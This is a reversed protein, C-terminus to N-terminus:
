SDAEYAVLWGLFQVAANVTDAANTADRTWRLTVYEGPEVDGPTLQQIALVKDDVVAVAQYGTGEGHQPMTEDGKTSRSVNECYVNGTGNPHIVAFILMGRVFDSPTLFAGAVACKKADPMNWGADDVGGWELHTGATENKAWCAPVLFTRSRNPIKDTTVADNAIHETNVVGDAIKDGTVADDALLNTDILGDPVNDAALPGRLPLSSREDTVTIAGLVTISVQALPIDWTTGAVQTLAPAGGGEAGAIRTIRVTHDAWSLRLVIRDIRTAASPAPIPVNVASSPPLKPCGYVIAFGPAVNVSGAAATVLFPTPYSTTPWGIGETTPDDLFTMRLWAWIEEQTYKDTGDGSTETTHFLSKGDDPM